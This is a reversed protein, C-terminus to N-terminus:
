AENNRGKILESVGPPIKAKMFEDFSKLSETTPIDTRNAFARIGDAVNRRSLTGLSVQGAELEYQISGSWTDMRGYGPALAISKHRGKVEHKALAVRLYDIQKYLVHTVRLDEEMLRPSDPAELVRRLQESRIEMGYHRFGQDQRLEEIRGQLAGNKLLKLTDNILQRWTRLLEYVSFMWMQSQANLFLMGSSARDDQFRERLVEFELGTLFQDVLGLNTAQMRMYPDNFMQLSVLASSLASGDIEEPNLVRREDDHDFEYEDDTM